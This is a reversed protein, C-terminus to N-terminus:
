NAIWLRKQSEVIPDGSASVEFQVQESRRKEEILRKEQIDLIRKQEGMVRKQESLQQQLKRLANDLKKRANINTQGPRQPQM